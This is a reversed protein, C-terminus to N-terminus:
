DTTINYNIDPCSKIMGMQGDNFWIYTFVNFSVNHDHHM